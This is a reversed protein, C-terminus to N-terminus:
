SWYADYYTLNAVAPNALSDAVYRLSNVIGPTLGHTDGDWWNTRTRDILNNIDETGGLKASRDRFDVRIFNGSAVTITFRIETGLTISQMGPNTAPGYLDFVPDAPATGAYPVSLEGSFSAPAAIVVPLVWPLPTGSSSTIGASSLVVPTTSFFRSDSMRVGLSFSRQHGYTVANISSPEPQSEPIDLATIRAHYNFPAPGGTLKSVVGILAEGTGACASFMADIGVDLEIQTRAEIVGQYTHAKGRRLARRPIERGRGAPLDRNDELDGLSKFGPIEILRYRPWVSLDGLALVGGITHIGSLGPVPM